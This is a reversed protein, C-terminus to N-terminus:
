MGTPLYVGFKYLLKFNFLRVSRCETIYQLVLIVCFVHDGNMRNPCLCDTSHNTDMCVTHLVQDESM